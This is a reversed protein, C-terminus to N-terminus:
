YNLLDPKYIDFRLDLQLRLQVLPQLSNSKGVVESSSAHVSDGGSYYSGDGGIVSLFTHTMSWLEIKKYAM